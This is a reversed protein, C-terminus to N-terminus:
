KKDGKRKAATEAAAQQGAGSAEGIGIQGYGMETNLRQELEKNKQGINYTSRGLEEARAGMTSKELADMAARRRDINQSFINQEVGARANLGQNAIQGLVGGAAGGRVGRAGLQALAQRQAGAQAQNVNALAGSRLSNQEEPTLGQLQEQRKALLSSIEAARGEELRGLSGEKFLDEGRARGEAMAKERSARAADQIQQQRVGQNIQPSGGM